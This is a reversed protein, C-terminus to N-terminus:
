KSRLCRVSSGQSRLAQGRAANAVGNSLGYVPVPRGLNVDPDYELVSSTWFTADYYRSEFWRGRFQRAGAPVARFGYIDTGDAWPFYHRWSGDGPDSVNDNTATSKLKAGEDTGMYLESESRQDNTFLTTGNIADMMAAWEYDTPIRWGPPCIGHGSRANSVRAEPVNAIAKGTYYNGSLWAEDWASNSRSDDSWKGDVMMATEWTYLAGYINILDHNRSDTAWDEGPVWYSGTGPAGDEITSFEVGNATGSEQNWTLGTTYRLNEAFWVKGDPMKVTNYRIGDRPDVCVIMSEQSVSVQQTLTGASVTVTATRFAEALNDSVVTVTVTGNGNASANSVRCWPVAEANVNAIWTANSTVAFSYSDADGFADINETSVTLVLADPEPEPETGDNKECGAAFLLLLLLLVCNATPLVCSATATKLFNTKMTKM